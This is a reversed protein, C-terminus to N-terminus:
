RVWKRLLLHEPQVPEKLRKKPHTKQMLNSVLSALFSDGAGVTDVAIVPFGPHEYFQNQFYLIAGNQGRTVCVSPCNYKGSIWLILEKETGKINNWGTIIKIEDDNLKIFDSKKLQTEIIEKKDFPPRLNIDCLKIAKSQNLFHLLTNRTTQNRSALSGFIIIDAKIFLSIDLDEIQINDWAVPECIEYTANKNEDLHVLVKSTPLNPDTKIFATNLGSKTLFRQLEAGELDNGIKSILIPNQGQQKLHIAVNMPAGGPKAGTPLIDWLVEGFCIVLGTKM